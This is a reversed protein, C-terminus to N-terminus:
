AILQIRSLLILELLDQSSLNYKIRPPYIEPVDNVPAGSITATYIRWTSLASRLFVINTRQIINTAIFIVANTTTPTLISQFNEKYKIGIVAIPWTKPTKM